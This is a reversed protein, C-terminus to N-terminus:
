SRGPEVDKTNPLTLYTLFLTETLELGVVTLWPARTVSTETHRYETRPNFIGSSNSPM